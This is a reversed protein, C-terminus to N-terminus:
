LMHSMAYGYIVKYQRLARKKAGDLTEYAYVFNGYDNVEAANLTNESEEWLNWSDDSPEPHITSGIIEFYSKEFLIYRDIEKTNVCGIGEEVEKYQFCITYKRGFVKGESDTNLILCYYGDLGNCPMNNPYLPKWELNEPTLEIAKRVIERM